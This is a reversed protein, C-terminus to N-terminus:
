EGGTVFVRDYRLNGERQTAVALLRDGTGVIRVREGEVIRPARCEILDRGGLTMGRAVKRERLGDVRVERFEALADRPSVLHARAEEWRAGAMWEIATSLPVAQELSFPGSGLRRLSALHGGVGLAAGLEHAISRVYTGKSCSLRITLTSAAPDWAVCELSHITVKRPKREVEKGERALEYLRRGEVKVASYMPPTQWYSGVMAEAAARVAEERLGSPDHTAVVEGEADYTTTEVGFRVVGEYRKDGELLFTSLKTSNGLCIPLVGTAAPDLTGTHGAKRGKGLARVRRVVDFSTMGAPKDVVLVGDLGREDKEKM